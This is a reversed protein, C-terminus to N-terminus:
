RLQSLDNGHLFRVPPHYAPAPAPHSFRANTTFCALAEVGSAHRVVLVDCSRPTGAAWGFEGNFLPLTFAQPPTRNFTVYVNFPM